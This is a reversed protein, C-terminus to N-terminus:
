VAVDPVGGSAALCEGGELGGREEFEVRVDVFAEEHDVALVEVSLGAFLEVAELFVANAIDVAGLHQYQYPCRRCFFRVPRKIVQGFRSMSTPLQQITVSIIEVIAVHSVM